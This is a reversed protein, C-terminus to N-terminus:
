SLEPWECTEQSVELSAEFFVDDSLGFDGSFELTSNLSEGFEFSEAVVSTKGDGSLIEPSGDIHAFLVALGAKGSVKVVLPQRLWYDNWDGGVYACARPQLLEPPEPYFVVPEVKACDEDGGTIVAEKLKGPSPANEYEYQLRIDCTAEVQAGSVSATIPVDAAEAEWTCENPDPYCNEAHEWEASWESTQTYEGVYGLAANAENWHGLEADGYPVAGATPVAFAMTALAAGLLITLRRKATSM